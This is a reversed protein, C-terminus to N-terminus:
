AMVEMITMALAWGFLLGIVIGVSLGISFAQEEQTM